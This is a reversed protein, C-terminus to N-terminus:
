VLNKDLLRFKDGSIALLCYKEILTLAPHDVDYHQNQVCYKYTSSPLYLQNTTLWTNYMLKLNEDLEVNFKKITRKIMAWGSLLQDVTIIQNTTKFAVFDKAVSFISYHRRLDPDKINSVLHNFDVTLTKTKNINAAVAFPLSPLDVILDITFESCVDRAYYHSKLWWTKEGAFLTQIQQDLLEPDVNNLHELKTILDTQKSIDLQSFDLVAAGQDTLNDQFKVNTYINTHSLSILKLLMDGGAGGKWRLINGPM